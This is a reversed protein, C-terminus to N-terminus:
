EFYITSRENKISDFSTQRKFSQSALMLIDIQLQRSEAKLNGKDAKRGRRSSAKITSLEEVIGEVADVDVDTDNVVSRDTVDTNLEVPVFDDGTTMNKVQTTPLFDFSAGCKQAFLLAVFSLLKLRGCLRERLLM